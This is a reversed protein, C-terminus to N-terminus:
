RSELKREGTVLRRVVLVAPRQLVPRPERQLDEVGHRATHGSSLGIHTRIEAVSQTSPPKVGVVGDRERPHELLVAHSM